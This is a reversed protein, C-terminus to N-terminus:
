GVDALRLPRDVNAHAFRFPRILRRFESYAKRWASSTTAKRAFVTEDGYFVAVGEHCAYVFFPLHEYYRENSNWWRGRVRVIKEDPDYWVEIEYKRIM